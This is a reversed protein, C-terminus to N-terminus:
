GKVADVMLMGISEQLNCINPDTLLHTHVRQTKVFFELHMFSRHFYSGDFVNFVIYTLDMGFVVFSQVGLYFLFLVNQLVDFIILLPVFVVM